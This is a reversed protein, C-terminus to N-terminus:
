VINPEVELEIGFVNRVSMQIHTIATQLDLFTANRNPNTLVLANKAYVHISGLLAGKLGAKEILWGAYLKSNDTDVKFSPLDSFQVLLKQLAANSIIPNKFFSGCNPVKTVDPLKRARIEIIANRIEVLTAEKQGREMFYMQVDKYQPIAPAKKSLQFSVRLIIFRGLNRKFFSDRYTFKCQPNQFTVLLGTQTDFAEISTITSSVESGYAGINQIPSAGVTGPIASLAEIGSLSNTVTWAVFADWNKGAGVTVNAFDPGDYTKFLEDNCVRVFFLNHEIDTFITNTGDGIPFLTLNRERAEHWAERMDENTIIEAFYRATGGIALGSYKKLDIKELIKM